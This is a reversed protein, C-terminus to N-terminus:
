EPDQGLDDLYQQSDRVFRAARSDLLAAKLESELPPLVRLDETVIRCDSSVAFDIIRRIFDDDPSRADLRVRFEELHGGDVVHDLRNGDEVGWARVSRSWSPLRPLGETLADLAEPALDRNAWWDGNLFADVSNPLQGEVAERPVVYVDLQWTAM